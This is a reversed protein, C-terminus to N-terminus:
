IARPRRLAKLTMDRRRRSCRSRADVYGDTTTDNSHPMHDSGEHILGGTELRQVQLGGPARRKMAARALNGRGYDTRRASM